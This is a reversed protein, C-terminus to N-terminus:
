TFGTPVRGSGFRVGCASALECLAVVLEHASYQASTVAAGRLAAERLCARRRPPMLACLAAPLDVVRSVNLLHAPYRARAAGETYAAMPYGLTPVGHSWWWAMRTPPRNAVAFPSGAQNGPRWLLGLDVTEHLQPSRYYGRQQTDDDLPANSWPPPPAESQGDEPPLAMACFDRAVAAVTVTVVVAVAVVMAGAAVVVVAVAAVVVAAAARAASGSRRSHPSPTM